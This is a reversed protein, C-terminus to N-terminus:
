YDSSSSPLRYTVQSPDCMEEIKIRSKAGLKSPDYAQQICAQKEIFQARETLTLPRTYQSGTMSELLSERRFIVAILEYWKIKAPWQDYGYRNRLQEKNTKAVYDDFNDVTDAPNKTVAIKNSDLWVCKQFHNEAYYEVRGDTWDLPVQKAPMKRWEPEGNETTWVGEGVGLTGSPPNPKSWVNLHFYLGCMIIISLGIFADWIFRRWSAPRKINIILRLGWLAFLILSLYYLVKFVPPTTSTAGYNAIQEFCYSTTIANISLLRFFLLGLSFILFLLVADFVPVSAFHKRQQKQKKERRKDWRYSRMSM